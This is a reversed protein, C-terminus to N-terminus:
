SALLREVSAPVPDELQMCLQDMVLMAADINAAIEGLQLTVERVSSCLTLCSAVNKSVVMLSVWRCQVGSLCNRFREVPM